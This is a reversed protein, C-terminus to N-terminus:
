SIISSHKTALSSSDQPSLLTTHSKFLLKVIFSNNLSSSRCDLYNFKFMSKFVKIWILWCIHTFIQLGRLLLLNFFTHNLMFCFLVVAHHNWMIIHENWTLLLLQIIRTITIFKRDHIKFKSIMMSTTRSLYLSYLFIRQGIFFILFFFNIQPFALYTNYFLFQEDM